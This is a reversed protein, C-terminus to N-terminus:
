SGPQWTYIWQNLYLTNWIRITGGHVRDVNAQKGHEVLNIAAAADAGGGLRELEALRRHAHRQGLQAVMEAIRQEDAGRVAHLRCGEAFAQHLRHALRQRREVIHEAVAALEIRGGRPATKADTHGVDGLQHQQGWSQSLRRAVAGPMAM